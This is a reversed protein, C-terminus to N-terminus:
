QNHSTPVCLNATLFRVLINLCGSCGPNRDLGILVITALDTYAAAAAVVVHSWHQPRYSVSTFARHSRSHSLHCSLRSMRGTPESPLQPCRWCRHCSCPSVISHRSRPCEHEWCYPTCKYRRLAWIRHASWLNWLVVKLCVFLNGRLDPLSTRIISHHHYFQHPSHM